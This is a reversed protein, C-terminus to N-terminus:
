VSFLFCFFVHCFEYALSTAYVVQIPQKESEFVRLGFEQTLYISIIRFLESINICFPVILVCWSFKKPFDKFFSCGNKISPQKKLIPIFALYMEFFFSLLFVMHSDDSYSCFANYSSCDLSLMTIVSASLHPATTISSTSSYM